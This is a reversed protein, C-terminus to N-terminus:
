ERKLRIREAEEVERAWQAFAAYEGPQVLGGSIVTHARVQLSDEDQEVEVKFRHPGENREGQFPTGVFHGMVKVQPGVLRPSIPSVSGGSHISGALRGRGGSGDM